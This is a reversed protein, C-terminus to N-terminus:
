IVHGSLRLTKYSISVQSWKGKHLSRILALLKKVIHYYIKKNCSYYLLTVNKEVVFSFKGYHKQFNVWLFDCRGQLEVM